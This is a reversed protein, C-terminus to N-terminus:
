RIEEAIFRNRYFEQYKLYVERFGVFGPVINCFSFYRILRLAYKFHSESTILPIVPDITFRKMLSLLPM